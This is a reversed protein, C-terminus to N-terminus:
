RLRDLAPGSEHLGFDDDQEDSCRAAIRDISRAARWAFGSRLLWCSPLVAIPSERCGGRPAAAKCSLHGPPGLVRGLDKPLPGPRALDAPLDRSLGQNHYNDSFLDKWLGEPPPCRAPITKRK